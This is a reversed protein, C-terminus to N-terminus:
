RLQLDYLPIEFVLYLHGLALRHIGGVCFTHLALALAGPVNIGGAPLAHAFDSLQGCTLNLVLADIQTTELDVAPLPRVREHALRQMNHIVLLADGQDLSACLAYLRTYRLLEDTVLEAIM